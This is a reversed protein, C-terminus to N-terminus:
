LMRSEMAESLHLERALRAIARIGSVIGCSETQFALRAADYAHDARRYAAETELSRDRRYAESALGVADAALEARAEAQRYAELWDRDDRRHDCPRLEALPFLAYTM